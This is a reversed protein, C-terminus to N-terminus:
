SCIESGNFEPIIRGESGNKKEQERGSAKAGADISKEKRSRSQDVTQYEDGFTSNILDQVLQKGGVEKNLVRILASKGGIFGFLKKSEHRIVEYELEAETVQHAFCAKEVAESIDKGQFELETSM